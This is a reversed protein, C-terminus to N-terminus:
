NVFTEKLNDECLPVFLPSVRRISRRTHCDIVLYNYTTQLSFVQPFVSRTTIVMQTGYLPLTTSFLVLRGLSIM